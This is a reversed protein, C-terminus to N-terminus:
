RLALHRPLLDGTRGRAAGRRRLPRRSGRGSHGLPLRPPRPPGLGPRLAGAALDLQSPRARLHRGAQWHQTPNTNNACPM